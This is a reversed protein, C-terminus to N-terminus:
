QMAGGALGIDFDIRGHDAGDLRHCYPHFEKLKLGVVLLTHALQNKFEEGLLLGRGADARLLIRDGYGRKGRAM